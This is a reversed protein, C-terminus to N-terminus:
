KIIKREIRRTRRRNLQSYCDAITSPQSNCDVVITRRKTEEGKMKKKGKKNENNDEKEKNGKLGLRRRRM